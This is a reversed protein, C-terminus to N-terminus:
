TARRRYDNWYQRALEIDRSQNRKSGGCLLLVLCQGAHGYYVRYGPGVDVRLEHLGDGLSKADGFNGLIVRDLRTRIRVRAHRDRLGRLWEDFPCQGDETNYLQLEQPEAESM